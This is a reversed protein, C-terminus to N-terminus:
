IPIGAPDHDLNSGRLRNKARHRRTGPIECSAFFHGTECCARRGLTTRVFGDFVFGRAEAVLRFRRQVICALGPDIRPACGGRFVAAIARRACAALNLLRLLM